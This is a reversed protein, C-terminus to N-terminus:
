FINMLGAVGNVQGFQVSDVALVAVDYYAAIGDYAPHIEASLVKITVPVNEKDALDPNGIRIAWRLLDVCDLRLRCFM